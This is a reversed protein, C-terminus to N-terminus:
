AGAPAPANPSAVGFGSAAMIAEVATKVEAFTATLGDVATADLPKECRALAIKLIAFGTKHGPLSAVAEAVQEIQAITFVPVVFTKGGLTITVTQM